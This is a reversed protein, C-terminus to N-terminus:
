QGESRYCCILVLQLFLNILSNTWYKGSRRFELCFMTLRFRTLLNEPAKLPYWIPVNALFPNVAHISEEEKNDYSNHYNIQYTAHNINGNRSTTFIDLKKAWLHLSVSNCFTKRQSIIRVAQLRTNLPM